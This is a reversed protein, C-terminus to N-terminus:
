RRLDEATDSSIDGVFASPICPRNNRQGVNAPVPALGDDRGRLNPRQYGASALGRYRRQTQFPGLGGRQFNVEVESDSIAFEKVEQYRADLISSRQGEM